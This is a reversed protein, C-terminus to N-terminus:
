DGSEPFWYFSIYIIALRLCCDTIIGMMMLISVNGIVHFINYGLTKQLIGSEAEPSLFMQLLLQQETRHKNLNDAKSQCSPHEFDM